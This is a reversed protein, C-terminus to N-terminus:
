KKKNSYFTLNDSVRSSKCKSQYEKESTIKIKKSNINNKSKNSSRSNTTEITKSYNSDNKCHKSKKSYYDIYPISNDRKNIYLQQSKRSIDINVIKVSHEYKISNKNNMKKRSASLSCNKNKSNNKKHLCSTDYGINLKKSDNIYKSQNFLVKNKLKNKDKIVNNNKILESNYILINKNFSYKGLNPEITKNEIDVLQSPFYLCNKNNSSNNYININKIQYNNIYVNKNQNKKNSFNKKIIPTEFSLSEENVIQYKNQVTNSNNFIHLEKKEIPSFMLTNAIRDAKNRYSLPLIKQKTKEQNNSYTDNMSSYSFDNKIKNEKKSEKKIYKKNVKENEKKNEKKTDKDKKNEKKDEKKIEKKIFIKKNIIRASKLNCKKLLKFFDINKINLKNVCQNKRNKILTKRKKNNNTNEKISDNFKCFSEEDESLDKKQIQEFNNPKVSLKGKLDDTYKWDLGYKELLLYYITTTKNHKNDLIDKIINEKCENIGYQSMNELIDMNINEIKLEYKSKIKSFHEKYWLVGYKLFSHNKIEELTIRKKPDVELMKKILDKCQLSIRDPIELKSSFIKQYLKESNEEEYPLYGCVMAYLVVGCSWIDSILGNYRPNLLMEPAAYCPSGCPTSLLKNQEFQASLGFDILILEKNNKILLNEPKIDRHSINNKKLYELASILQIFFISADNETLRKKRVILDFLEGGNAYETVLFYRQTDEIIQYLKLLNPHNLSKLIKIERMIRELNEKGKIRNKHLIKISVIQNTTIQHASKVKGFTGEGITQIIKFDDIM